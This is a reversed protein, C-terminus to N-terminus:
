WLMRTLRRTFHLVLEAVTAMMLQYDVHMKLHVVKEAISAEVFCGLTFFVGGKATKEVESM